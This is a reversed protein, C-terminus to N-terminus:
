IHKLFLLGHLLFYVRLYGHEYKRGEDWRSVERTEWICMSHNLVVQRCLRENGVQTFPLCCTQPCVSQLLRVSDWNQKYWKGAAHGPVYETARKSPAKTEEHASLPLLLLLRSLNATLM